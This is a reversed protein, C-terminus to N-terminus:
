KEGESTTATALNNRFFRLIAVRHMEACMLPDLGHAQGEICALWEMEQAPTLAGLLGASDQEEESGDPMVVSVRSPVLAALIRGRAGEDDGQCAEAATLRERTAPPAVIMRGDPMEFGLSPPPAFNFTMTNM